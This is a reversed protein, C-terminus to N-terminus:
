EISPKKKVPKKEKLLLTSAVCAFCIGTETKTLLYMAILLLYSVVIKLAKVHVKTSLDKSGNSYQLMQGLHKHLSYILLLFLGAWLTLVIVAHVKKKLHLFLLNSFNAIKLLYNISLSTSIWISFDNTTIWFIYFINGIRDKEIETVSM